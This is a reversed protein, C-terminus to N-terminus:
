APNNSLNSAKKDHDSFLKHSIDDMVAEAVNKCNDSMREIYHILEIFSIATNPNCEGSNLRQIHRERLKKELDDFQDEQELVLRAAEIDENEFAKIMDAM